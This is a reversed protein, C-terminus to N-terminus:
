FLMDLPSIVVWSSNVLASKFAMRKTRKAPFPEVTIVLEIDMTSLLMLPADEAFSPVTSSLRLIVLIHICQPFVEAFVVKWARLWLTHLLLYDNEWRLDIELGMLQLDM